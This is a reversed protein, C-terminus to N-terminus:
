VNLSISMGDPNQNKTFCHFVTSDGTLALLATDGADYYNDSWSNPSVHFAYLPYLIHGLDYGLSDM